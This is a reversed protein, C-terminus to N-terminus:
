PRSNGITSPGKMMIVASGPAMHPMMQISKTVPVVSFTGESIPAIMAMPTAVEMGDQQDGKGIILPAYPLIGKVRRKGRPVRAQPRHQHRRQGHDNPHQRHRQSEAFPAFLVGRQTTRHNAAQQHGGHRRQEEHRHNVAHQALLLKGAVRIFIRFLLSDRTCPSVQM